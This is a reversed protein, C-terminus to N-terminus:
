AAAFGYLQDGYGYCGMGGGIPNGYQQYNQIQAANLGDVMRYPLPSNQATYNGLGSCQYDGLGLTATYQGFPTYDAILRLVVQVIGGALISSAMAKNKMFMNVGWSLAFAAVLNGLYGMPGKNSDQLVAQTLYKSGVAGAITFVATQALGTLDSLGPNRRTTGRRRHGTNKRTARRKTHHSTAKRRSRNKKTTAM